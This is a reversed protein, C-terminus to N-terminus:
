LNKIEKDEKKVLEENLKTVENFVLAVLEPAHSYLFKKNNDNVTLKKNTEKNIIGKWDLISKVFQDVINFSTDEDISYNATDLPQVLLEIGEDYKVWKNKISKNIILM